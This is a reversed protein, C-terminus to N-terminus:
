QLVVELWLRDLAIIADFTGKSVVYRFGFPLIVLIWVKDFSEGEQLFHIFSFVMVYILLLEYFLKVFELQSRSIHTLKVNTQLLDNNLLSFQDHFRGFCQANMNVPKSAVHEAVLYHSPVEDLKWLM